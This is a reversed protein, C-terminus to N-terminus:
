QNSSVLRPPLSRFQAFLRNSHGAIEAEGEPAGDVLSVAIRRTEPDIYTRQGLYGLFAFTKSGLMPHATWIQYGYGAYHIGKSWTQPIRTTTANKLFGQFCSGGVKGDLGDLVYLAFRAYDRLSMFANGTIRAEGDRGLSWGGGHEPAIERWVTKEFFEHFRMGTARAIVYGLIMTDYAKYNFYLGHAVNQKVARELIDLGSARKSHYDSEDQELYWGISNTHPGGSSMMLAQRVTASGHMHQQLEPLYTAVKEDLDIKQTDCLARGLTVAAISKAMSMSRQPVAAAPSGTRYREFIISGDTDLLILAKIYTRAKADDFLTNAKAVLDRYHSPPQTVVALARPKASPPYRVDLTTQAM